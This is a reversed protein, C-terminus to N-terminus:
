ESKSIYYRLRKVYCRGAIRAVVRQIKDHMFTRGIEM